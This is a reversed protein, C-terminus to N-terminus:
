RPDKRDAGILSMNPCQPPEDVVEQHPFAPPPELEADFGHAPPPKPLQRRGAGHPRMDSNYWYRVQRLSVGLLDATHTKNRGCYEYAADVVRMVHPWLKDGPKWTVM